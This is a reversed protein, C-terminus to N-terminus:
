GDHDPETPATTDGGGIDGRSAVDSGDSKAVDGSDSHRIPLIDPRRQSRLTGDEAYIEPSPAKWGFYKVRCEFNPDGFRMLYHVLGERLLGWMEQTDSDPDTSCEIMITCIASRM